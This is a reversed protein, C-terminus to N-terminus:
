NKLPRVTKLFETYETLKERAHERIKVNTITDVDAKLTESIKANSLGKQRYGFILALIADRAEEDTDANKLRGQLMQNHHELRGKSSALRANEEATKVKGFRPLTPARERLKRLEEEEAESLKSERDKQYLQRLRMFDDATLRGRDEAGDAENPGEPEDAGIQLPPPTAGGARGKPVTPEPLSPRPGRPATEEVPIFRITKVESLASSERNGNQMLVEIRGDTMKLLTCNFARGDRLAVDVLPGRPPPLEEADVGLWGFLLPVVIARRYGM